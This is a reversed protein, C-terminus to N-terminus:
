FYSYFNISSIFSIANSSWNDTSNREIFNHSIRFEKRRKKCIFLIISDTFVLKVPIQKKIPLSFMSIYWTHVSFISQFSFRELQCFTFLNQSLPKRVLKSWFWEAANHNIWLLWLDTCTPSVCCYWISKNTM